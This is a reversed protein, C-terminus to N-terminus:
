RKTLREGREGKVWGRAGRNVKEEFGQRLEELHLLLSFHTEEDNSRQWRDAEALWVTKTWNAPDFSKDLRASLKEFAEIVAVATSEEIGHSAACAIAASRDNADSM